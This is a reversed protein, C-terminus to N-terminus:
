TTATTGCHPGRARQRMIFTWIGSQSENHLYQMPVHVVMALGRQLAMSVVDDWPVRWEVADVCDGMTVHHADGWQVAGIRREYTGCFVGGPQLCQSVKDLLAACHKQTDCFYHLAFNCMALNCALVPIETADMAYTHAPIQMEDARRALEHLADEATDVGIYSACGVCKPLDGGRGCAFDVIHCGSMSGAALAAAQQILVHKAARHAHRVHM